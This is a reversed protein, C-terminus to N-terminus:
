SCRRKDAGVAAPRQAATLRRRPLGDLRKLCLRFGPGHVILETPEAVLEVIQAPSFLRGVFALLRGDVTVPDFWFGRVSRVAIIASQGRHTIAAQKRRALALTVARVGSKSRPLIVDLAEIVYGAAVTM